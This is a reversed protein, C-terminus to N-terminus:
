ASSSFTTTTTAAPTTTTTSSPSSSTTTPAVTTTTSTTTTAGTGYLLNLPGYGNSPSGGAVWNAASTAFSYVVGTDAAAATTVLRTDYDYWADGGATELSVLYYVANAKLTVPSALDAYRFAGAPAGATNVTVSAVDTGTAADVLKVGHSATNGAVV